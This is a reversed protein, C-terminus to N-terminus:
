KENKMSDKADERGKRDIKVGFQEIGENSSSANTDHM